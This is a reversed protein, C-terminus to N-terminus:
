TNIIVAHFYQKFCRRPIGRFDFHLHLTNHPHSTHPQYSRFHPAYLHSALPHSLQILTFSVTFSVTFSIFSVFSHVSHYLYIFHIILQILSCTILDWAHSYILIFEFLAFIDHKKDETRRLIKACRRQNFM